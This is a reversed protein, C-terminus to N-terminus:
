YNDGRNLTQALDYALVAACFDQAHVPVHGHIRMYAVWGTTLCDILKVVHLFEADVPMHTMAYNMLSFKAQAVSGHMDLIGVFIRASEESFFASRFEPVRNYMDNYNRPHVKYTAVYDALLDEFKHSVGNM